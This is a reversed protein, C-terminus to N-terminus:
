YGMETRTFHRILLIAITLVTVSGLSIRGFRTLAGDRVFLRPIAIPVCGAVTAIVQAGFPIRSGSRQSQTLWRYLLDSFAPEFIRERVEKPM